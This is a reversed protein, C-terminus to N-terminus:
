YRSNECQREEEIKRDIIDYIDLNAIEDAKICKENEDLWESFHEQLLGHLDNIEKFSEVHDDEDIELENYKKVVLIATEKDNRLLEWEDVELAFGQVSYVCTAEDNHEAMSWSNQTRHSEIIDGDEHLLVVYNLSTNGNVAASYQNSIAVALEERKEEILKSWITKTM